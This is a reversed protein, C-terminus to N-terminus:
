KAWDSMGFKQSRGSITKPEKISSFFTEAGDWGYKPLFGIPFTIQRNNESLFRSFDWSFNNSFNISSLLFIKSLPLFMSERGLFILEVSHSLYQSSRLSHNLLGGIAIPRRKRAIAWISM